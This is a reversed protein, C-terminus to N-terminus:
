ETVVIGDAQLLVIVESRVSVPVQKITRRGAKVLNYYIKAM